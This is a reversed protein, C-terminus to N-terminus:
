RAPVAPMKELFDQEIVSELQMNNVPTCANNSKRSITTFFHHLDQLSRISNSALILEGPITESVPPEQKYKSDM